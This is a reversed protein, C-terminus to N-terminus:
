SQHNSALSEGYISNYEKILHGRLKKETKLRIYTRKMIDFIKSDLVREEQELAKMTANTNAMVAFNLVVIVAISYPGPIKPM